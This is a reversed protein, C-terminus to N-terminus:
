SLKVAKPLICVKIELGLVLASCPQLNSIQVEGMKFRNLSGFETCTDRM